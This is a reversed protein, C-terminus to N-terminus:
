RFLPRVRHEKISHDCYWTVAGQETGFDKTKGCSPCSLRLMGSPQRDLHLLTEPITTTDSM